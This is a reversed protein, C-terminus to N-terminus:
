EVITGKLHITILKEEGTEILVREWVAQSIVGVKNKDYEICLNFGGEPLLEVTPLTCGCSKNVVLHNVDQFNIIAKTDSGKKLVGLNLTYDVNETNETFNFKSKNTIKM